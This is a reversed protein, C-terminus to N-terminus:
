PKLHFFFLFLVLRKLSEGFFFSFCMRDNALIKPKQEPWTKTTYNFKCTHTTHFIAESIAFTTHTQTRIHWNLFTHMTVLSCLLLSVNLIRHHHLLSSLEFGYAMRVVRTCVADVATSICFRFNPFRLAVGCVCQCVCRIRYICFVCVSVIAYRSDLFFAVAVVTFICWVSPRVVM